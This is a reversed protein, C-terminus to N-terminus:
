GSALTTCQRIREMTAEDGTVARGIYFNCCCSHDAVWGEVIEESSGSAGAERCLEVIRADIDAARPM